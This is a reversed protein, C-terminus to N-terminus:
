YWKKIRVGQANPNIRERVLDIIKKGSRVAEICLGYSIGQDIREEVGDKRIVIIAQICDCYAIGHSGTEVRAYERGRM